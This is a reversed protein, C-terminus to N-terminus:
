TSPTWTLATYRVTCRSYRRSAVFSFLNIRFRTKLGEGARERERHNSMDTGSAQFSTAEVSRNRKGCKANDSAESSNNEVGATRRSCMARHRADAGLGSWHSEADCCKSRKRGYARGEEYDMDELSLIGPSQNQNM